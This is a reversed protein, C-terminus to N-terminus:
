GEVEVTVTGEFARDRYGTVVIIATGSESAEAELYPDFSNDTDPGASGRDDNQEASGDPLYVSLYGDEGSDAGRVDVSLTEGESLDVTGVWHEDDSFSVDFDGSDLESEDAAIPDSLVDVDIRGGAYGSVIVEHDGPELFAVIGADRTNSSDAGGDDVSDIERGEPDRLELMPDNGSSSSTQIHYLGAEDVPLTVTARESYDLNLSVSGEPELTEENEDTDPSETTDETADETPEDTSEDTSDETADETAEETPSSDGDDGDEDDDSGLLLFFAILAGVILVGLIAIIGIILGASLGGERSSDEGSPSPSYAGSPASSYMGSSEGAYSGSSDTSYYGAAPSQAAAQEASQESSSGSSSEAPREPSSGQEPVAATHATWTSGDWWRLQGPVQPDHYWGAPPTTM